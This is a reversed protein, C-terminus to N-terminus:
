INSVLQGQFFGEWKHDPDQRTPRKERVKILLTPVQPPKEENPLVSGDDVLPLLVLHVSLLFVQAAVHLAYQIGALGPSVASTRHPSLLKTELLPPPCTSM